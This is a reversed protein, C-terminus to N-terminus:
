EYRLAIVPDVRLARRAPAVSAVTALLGVFCILGCFTAPDYFPVGYFLDMSGPFILTQHLLASLVAAMAIGCGMGVFVPRLAQPVINRLIRGGTEGLAIRIGIERTRQGVLYAVVGYIGIGSLALALGALVAAFGALGRSLARLSAVVGDDLNTLRADQILAGDAADTEALIAAMAQRRQGKLCLLIGPFGEAGALYVHSPDVRSLNAFRVDRVVGVVLFSKLRGKWNMDLAFRKGVPDAGPWFRRATSESILAVPASGAAEQPSFNRRRVVPIGVVGTYSESAYSALTQGGAGDV